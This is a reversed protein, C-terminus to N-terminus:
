KLKLKIKDIVKNKVINLSKEDNPNIVLMRSYFEIAKEGEEKLKPNKYFQSLHYYALYDLAEYREKNYKATDSKTKELVSEYIKVAFGTLNNGKKDTSDLNSKTRARWLYGLLYDPQKSNFIAFVTDAEKFSKYRILSDNTSQGVNYYVKGLNYYDMANANKLEIKKNYIEISKNYNKMRNFASAAESLLESKSTDLNYAKLLNISALSDMKNKTLLRGYYVYDTPRIKEPQARNLFKRIYTLGKDYQGLEYFSYALARNLDNKTTDLAYIENIQQIAEKYDELDMLTNIYQIRAPVNGSNLKVFKEFYKKAEDNKGSKSLLFGLERYAPAYASDIKVVEYYFNRADPYNRARMWLQGVRLKALPSRPNLTQAVNYNSIAKSGDNLLFIYADGKVIYLDYNKNDLKEANRLWTFVQATDYIGAKIYGSAMRTLAEAQKQPTLTSTKNTKSPFLSIAKAYLQQADNMKKKMLDIEGLGIYNLPNKADQQIGKQLVITASDAMEDFSVTATDSFYKQLYNNGYFYYADGDAPNNRILEKYAKEADGFRESRTLRIAGELDQANGSINLLLAPIIMSVLAVKKILRLM